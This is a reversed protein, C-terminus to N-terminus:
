KEGRLLANEIKLALGDIKAEIITQNRIYDERRVYNLPMDAKMTLIDREIRQWERAENQACQELTNFKATWIKQAEARSTEQASFREDLRREVQSLLVKAFGFAFGLFTVLLGALFTILHWSEIPATM